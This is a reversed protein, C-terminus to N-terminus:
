LYSRDRVGYMSTANMTIDIPPQLDNSSM